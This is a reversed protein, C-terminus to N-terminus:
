KIFPNGVGCVDSDCQAPLRYGIRRSISYRHRAFSRYLFALSPRLLGVRLPWVMWGRGVASYAALLSDIGVLVRGDLTLSHVERNLADMDTGLLAPEFGPTHIDVFALRGAGNWRRLRGMEGVCFACRGDFYLTLAAAGHADGDPIAM